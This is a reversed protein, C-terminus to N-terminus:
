RTLFGIHNNQAKNKILNDNELQQIIETSSSIFKMRAQRTSIAFDGPTITKIKALREFDTATPKDFKLIHCQKIFLSRAQELKLYDFKIKFDFRRMVAPDLRDMLNTTVILLGQHNEIQTLLENVMTNEWSNKSYRRDSLFSDVEDILLIANNQRAEMFSQAINQESEGIYKSLLDSAKKMLLPIALYESLYKAYETKGTGSAGYFCLRADKYEVLSQKLKDLDTDANIFAPDYIDKLEAYNKVQVTDHQQAKLTSNILTSVSLDVDNLKTKVCKIVKASRSIIAPVIFKSKSLKKISIDSILDKYSAALIQERIHQPPSELEIVIDMRRIFSDELMNIYNCLWITPVINTELINNLWAKPTNAFPNMSTDDKFIDELEDFALLTKQHSFFNQAAKYARLRREGKIPNNSDDESSIEFIPVNIHAALTRSLETKGTGAEGYILINVGTQKLKIAQNLYPLAIDLHPQIHSYDKLSLTSPPCQKVIDKLLVHPEIADSIVLDQFNESILDLKLRLFMTGNHDLCLLGTKNLTSQSHLAAKILKQDIDLVKALILIIRYSSLNGLMDAANELAPELEIITRFYLIKVDVESLNVLRALKELNLSLYKSYSLRIKDLDYTDYAALRANLQQMVVTKDFNPVPDLWQELGLILGLDHREVGEKGIFLNHADLKCIIKLVWYEILPHIGILSDSIDSNSTKDM